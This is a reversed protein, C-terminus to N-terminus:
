HWNRPEGAGAGNSSVGHFLYRYYDLLDVLSQRLGFRPEFGLSALRSIQAVNRPMDIARAPGQKMAPPTATRALRVLEDFVLQIPTERGTGVNYIGEEGGVAIQVLAEAVDRVDIFDRTTTLPGVTVEPLRDGTEISAIQAALRGCIHREDQGPGVVAFIRAIMTSIQFRRGLMRAVSEQACKSISYMDFPAPAMSETVPLLEDPVIGYISGSSGVVISQLPAGSEVAAHYLNEMGLVNTRLLHESPDDRLGSALHVIIHPFVESIVSALASRDLLDVSFYKYRASRVAKTITAPLPAFIRQNGQTIQHTFTEDNRGSRGLGFLELDPNAGLWHAVVYRGTFGQAGTILARM